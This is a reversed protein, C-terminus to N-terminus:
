RGVGLYRHGHREVETRDWVNRGDVLLAPPYRDFAAPTYEDHATILLVVDPDEGAWPVFGLRDLEEDDYLPDAALFKAGRRHCERAIAFAPSSAVEKVGPRYAVGLGVVVKGALTGLEAEVRDLLWVPMGDNVRRAERILASGSTSAELLHPYHPICHGGVGVGPRHIHSYPQSNAADIVAEVDIQWEDCFRALENAFAINLDRYTTEALKALEAAEASGLDRVEARLYTGYFAAARRGSAEDVGGVLKPYTDLDRLVRGSSVREPSFAVDVHHRSRLRPAFRRRTTGVPLTTEFIVLAGSDVTVAIADVAADINSLDPTGGHATLPVLVVVVEAGPIGAAYDSTVTLRGAGVLDGIREMGPEPGIPSEGRRIATVVRADIDVGVVEAGREALLVAVPLGMKGLGVVAVRTTSM